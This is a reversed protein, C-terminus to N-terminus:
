GSSIIGSLDYAAAVRAYKESGDVEEIFKRLDNMVPSPLAIITDAPLLASLRLVDNKHKRINKEDVQDGRAKRETLDLWAKAKFPILHSVDLVPIGDVMTAGTQLFNYYDDDLLIASLSSVYDNIPLPTLVADSPLTIGDVRRSFLEIMAPCESLKPNLFRYYEPVGTYRLRQEYGAAKIYEWIRSGFEATLAEVILVMDIDRTARFVEGAEGMLLDCATGGIVIYNSDYGRFWDRFSNIGNVM